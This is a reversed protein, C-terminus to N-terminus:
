QLWKLPDLALNRSRIEFYLPSQGSVQGIVEQAMVKDGASKLSVGLGGFITYLEHSHEVIVVMGKGPLMGSYQVIGELVSLVPSTAVSPAIEIGKHFIKLGTKEDISSGYSSVVTGQLPWELSRARLPQRLLFKKEDQKKTQLARAQFQSLMREIEIESNRLEQYRRLQAEREVQNDQNMHHRLRKHFEILNEQEDLDQLVAAQQSQEQEIKSQLEDADQLDARFSELEKLESMLVYSVFAQQLAAKSEETEGRIFFDKAYLKPLIWKGFQALLVTQQRNIKKSVEDKRAQLEKLFVELENLRKRTLVQEQLQLRQLENLHKIQQYTEKKVKEHELLLKEIQIKQSRIQNLKQTLAPDVKSFATPAMFFPAMFVVWLLASMGLVQRPRVGVRIVNLFVIGAGMLAGSLLLESWYISPAATLSLEGLINFHVWVKKQLLVWEIVLLLYASLGTMLMSCFVPMSQQSRSGGWISIDEIIWQQEKLQFFQVAFLLAWGICGLALMGYFIQKKLHLFFDILRQHHIPRVEVKLVQPLAEIRKLTSDLIKGRVIVFSSVLPFGESEMDRLAKTVEPEDQSLQDLVENAKLVQVSVDKQGRTEEQLVQQVQEPAHLDEQLQIGVWRAQHAFQLTHGVEKWAIFFFTFLLWLQALALILFFQSAFSKRFPIFGLKIQLLFAQM